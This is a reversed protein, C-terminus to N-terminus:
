PRGRRRQRRQGPSRDARREAVGAEVNVGIRLELSDFPVLAGTFECSLTALECPIATRLHFDGEPGPESGAIAVAELGAPLTASLKVPTTTGLLDANGLNEATLYIEGDPVEPVEPTGESGPNIVAATSPGGVGVTDAVEIPPVGIESKVIFTIVGGSRSEEVEVSPGYEPELTAEINAATLPTYGFEEAWPETLFEELTTGGLAISFGVQEPSEEFEETPATIEQEEPEGPVGPIAAERSGPDIYTPRSGTELHWWPSAAQASPVAILSLAFLLSVCLGAWRPTRALAVRENVWSHFRKTARAADKVQVPRHARLELRASVPNQGSSSPHSIRHAIRFLRAMRTTEKTVTHDTPRHAKTANM